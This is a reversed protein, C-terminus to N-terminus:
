KIPLGMFLAKLIGFRKFNIAFKNLIYYLIFTIIPSIIYLYLIMYVLIGQEGFMQGMTPKLIISLILVHACYIFLTEQGSSSLYEVIKKSKFRDYLRFIWFLACFSAVLCLIYRLIIFEFSTEKILNSTYYFSYKPYLSYGLVMCLLSLVNVLAYFLKRNKYRRIKTEFLMYLMGCGYFFWVFSFHFYDVPLLSFLPLSLLLVILGLKPFSIYLLKLLSGIFVCVLLASLFWYFSTSSVISQGVFMIIHRIISDCSTSVWVNQVKLIIYIGGLCDISCM